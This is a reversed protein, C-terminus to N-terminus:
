ILRAILLPGQPDLTTMRCDLYYSSKKGSTLTFDGIRLSKQRIIDRLQRLNEEMAPVIINGEEFLLPFSESDRTASTGSMRKSTLMLSGCCGRKMLRPVSSNCEWLFIPHRSAAHCRYPRFAPSTASRSVEEGRLSPRPHSLM